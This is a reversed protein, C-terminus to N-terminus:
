NNNFVAGPLQSLQQTLFNSTSNLQALLGDLANFQRLYRQQLGQLRTSLAERQEDIDAISSKVSADRNDFVGGTQLYPDLLKDLKAAMGVEPAGFLEGVADFDTNLAAGLKTGDVSMQGDLGM